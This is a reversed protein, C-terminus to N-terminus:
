LRTGTAALLEDEPVAARADTLAAIRNLQV